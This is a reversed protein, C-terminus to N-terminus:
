VIDGTNKQPNDFGVYDPIELALLMDKTTKKYYDFAFRLRSDLFQADLGIDFSQTKEWSINEIAYVQQAASLQSLRQGNQYFLVNSFVIAAQYPYYNQETTNPKFIRENGLTGWSARLKLYSLWDNEKEKLFNEESIVWGASFSPFSGWRYDKHFRSSGDYRINGQLLYRNDYNYMVRGFWSQYAVEQANGSNDRMSLPGLDLYPYSDLEYQDRSAMLNEWFAYYTEYGAM